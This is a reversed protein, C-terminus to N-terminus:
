DVERCFFIPGDSFSFGDKHPQIGRGFPRISEIIQHSHFVGQRFAVIQYERGAKGEERVYARAQELNNFVQRPMVEEKDDIQIEVVKFETSDKAM